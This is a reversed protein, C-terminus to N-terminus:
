KIIRMMNLQQRCEELRERICRAQMELEVDQKLYKAEYVHPPAQLHEERLEIISRLLEKGTEIYDELQKRSQMTPEKVCKSYISNIM